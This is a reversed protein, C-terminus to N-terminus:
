VTAGAEPYLAGRVAFDVGQLELLTEDSDKNAADITHTFTVVRLGNDATRITVLWRHLRLGDGDQEVEHVSNSLTTREGLCEVPRGEHVDDAVADRTAEDEFVCEETWPRLTGSGPRDDFLVVSGDEEHGVLWDIPIGYFCRVNGSTDVLVRGSPEAANASAVLATPLVIRYVLARM